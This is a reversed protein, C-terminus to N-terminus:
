NQSSAYFPVLVSLERSTGIAMHPHREPVLWQLIRVVEDRAVTVCGASASDPGGWLHLFIASGRGAVVPSDNYRIVAAYAYPSIALREFSKWREKPDGEFNVWQNYDPSSPDDVWYDNQGVLRYPWECGAPPPMTGFGTGMRFLGIPTKRDGECKSATMGNEGIAALTRGVELWKGSATSWEFARLVAKSTAYGDSEVMLLQRCFIFIAEM